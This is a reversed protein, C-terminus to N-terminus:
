TGTRDCLGISVNETGVAGVPQDDQCIQQQSRGDTATEKQDEQDESIEDLIILFITGAACFAIISCALLTFKGLLITSESFM